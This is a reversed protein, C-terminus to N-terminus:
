KLIDATNDKGLCQTYREYGTAATEMIAHRRVPRIGIGVITADVGFQYRLEDAVRHREHELSAVDEPGSFERQFGFGQLSVIEFAPLANGFIKVPGGSHRADVIGVVGGKFAPDLRGVIGITIKRDM